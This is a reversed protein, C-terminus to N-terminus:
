SRKGKGVPQAEAAMRMAKLRAAKDVEAQFRARAGALAAQQRQEAFRASAEARARQEPTLRKV